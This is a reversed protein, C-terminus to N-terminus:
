AATEEAAARGERSGSFLCDAERIIVAAAHGRHRRRAAM